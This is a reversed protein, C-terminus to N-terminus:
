PSAFRFGLNENALSEDKFAVFTPSQEGSRRRFTNKVQGLTENAESM